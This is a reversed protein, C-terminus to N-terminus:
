MKEPMEIALLEFSEKLIETYKRLVLLKLNKYNEDTESLISETNYFTNFTKALEYSYGALIHPHAENATQELINRYDMLLIMLNKLESTIKINESGLLMDLEGAKEIINHARVYSYQIYPGSNWEFTMFEDWDFVVDSERTKKLYGYKVAGIGIIKALNDLEQGIIDDRKELIIRKAREEAEDLLVDLKIIKWKRTSMAGDKLTIFGNYAHILETDELSDRKLWWAQNAIYFAQRFHLQQRMDNFYLMKDPSWNQMRYKICALDSALYGHTGDRKQLICSTIHTEEPFVVGVSNDDNQTAINKEILEKVIDHMSDTLDPYNEMKPLGIWEYFSEGINYQTFVWLRALQINMADISSSTFDKWLSVLELNWDALKKFTDRFEQELEPNEEGQKTIQVYLEFLHEVANEHLKKESWHEKFARILKGFIIGWDWIHSDSIVSYWLKKYVNVIVQWQNPTCMHGIHLPKGINAWIYDIIINEIKQEQADYWKRLFILFDQIYSGWSMFFNIYPGDVVIKEINEKKLDTSIIEWLQKAIDQPSKKLVRALSFCWFAFDWMNKKPPSSLEIKIDSVDLNEQLIKSIYDELIKQM